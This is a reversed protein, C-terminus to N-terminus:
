KRNALVRLSLLLCDTEVEQDLISGNDRHIPAGYRRLHRPRRVPPRSRRQRNYQAAHFTNRGPQRDIVHFARGAPTTFPWVCTGTVKSRPIRSSTGRSSHSCFYMKGASAFFTVSSKTRQPVRSAAASCIRPARVVNASIYKQLHRQRPSSLLLSARPAQRFPARFGIGTASRFKKGNGAVALTHYRQRRGVGSM